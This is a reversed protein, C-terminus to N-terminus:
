KIKISYIFMGLTSAKILKKAKMTTLYNKWNRRYYSENGCHHYAGRDNKINWSGLLRRHNFQLILDISLEHDM